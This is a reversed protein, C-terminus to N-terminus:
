KKNIFCKRNEYNVIDLMWFNGSQMFGLNKYHDKVMENKPTPVYEGKLYQFGKEKAVNAITNLVFNEM